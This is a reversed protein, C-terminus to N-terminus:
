AEGRGDRTVAGQRTMPAIEVRAVDCVLIPTGDHERKLVIELIDAVSTLLAQGRIFRQEDHHVVYGGGAILNNEELRLFLEELTIGYSTLRDPDPRVEYTKYFGGHMNIETVGRVERLRTAIEWDLITRLEMVMYGMDSRVEFQLIEGLATMLPGLRPIGYGKPILSM